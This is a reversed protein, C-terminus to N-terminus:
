IDAQKPDPGYRNPGETGPLLMFILVILGGIIPVFMLLVMWGSKDQDHFRRVTVALSPLLFVLWLLCFVIFMPGMATMMGAAAEPSMQGDPGIESAPPMSTAFMAGLVFWAVMYVVFLFLAFMWYEMRRSRGNFDAYRQLPLFMYNM